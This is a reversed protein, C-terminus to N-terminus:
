GPSVPCVVDARKLRKRAGLTFAATPPSGPAGRPQGGGGCRPRLRGRERAACVSDGRRPQGRSSRRELGRVRQQKGAERLQSATM